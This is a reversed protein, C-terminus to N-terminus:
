RFAMVLAGPPAGLERQIPECKAHLLCALRGSLRGEWTLLEYNAVGKSIVLDASM